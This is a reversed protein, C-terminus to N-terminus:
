IWVLGMPWHLRWCPKVSPMNARRPWQLRTRMILRRIRCLHSCLLSCPTAGDQAVKRAAVVAIKGDRMKAVSKARANSKNEATPTADKSPGKPCSYKPVQTRQQSKPVAGIYDHKVEHRVPCFVNNTHVSHRPSGRWLSRFAAQNVTATTTAKRVGKKAPKQLSRM